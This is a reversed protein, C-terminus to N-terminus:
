ATPPLAFTMAEIRGEDAVIAIRAIRCARVEFTMVMRVVGDPVVAIAARGNVQMVAADLSHAAGLSARRAIAQAGRVQQPMDTPSAAADVALEADPDLVALLREFDGQRAAAFFAAVLRHQDPAPSGGGAPAARLRRRGRSALQRVADVSRELIPAVEEFPVAFLDHLVFALREAPALRDLVVLMAIGVAEALMAEREPDAGARDDVLQDLGPPLTVEPHRQRKRLHDLSIRSVVTTLWGGINEVEAGRRQLRLWTEQVVDEAESRSGVLRFALGHLRAREAQFTEAFSNPQAM